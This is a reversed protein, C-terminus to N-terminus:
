NKLRNERNKKIINIDKDTLVKPSKPIFKIWGTKKLVIFQPLSRKIFRVPM